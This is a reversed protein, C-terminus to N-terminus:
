SGLMQMLRNLYAQHQNFNTTNTALDQNFKQGGSNLLNNFWMNSDGSTSAARQQLISANLDDLASRKGSNLNASDGGFISSEPIGRAYANNQLKRQAVTYEDQIDQAKRDFIGTVAKDDYPSPNALKNKLYDSVNFNGDPTAGATGAQAPAAGGTPGNAGGTAAVGAPLSIQPANPNYYTGPNYGPQGKEFYKPNLSGDPNRFSVQTGSPGTTGTNPGDPVGGGGAGGGGAGGQPGSPPTQSIQPLHSKVYAVTQPDLTAMFHAQMEPSLGSLMKLANATGDSSQLNETLVKAATAKLFPNSGNLAALMTASDGRNGVTGNTLMGNQVALAHIQDATANKPLGFATADGGGYVGNAYTTGSNLGSQTELARLQQSVDQSNGVGFTGGEPSVYGALPNTKTAQDTATGAANLTASPRNVVGDPAAAGNQAVGNADYWSAGSPATSLQPLGAVQPNVNPTTPPQITTPMPATTPQVTGDGGPPLGGSPHPAMSPDPAMTGSSTPPSQDPVSYDPLGMGPKPATQPSHVPKQNGQDANAPDTEDDPNYPRPPRAIGQAQMGAFTNPYQTSGGGSYSNMM